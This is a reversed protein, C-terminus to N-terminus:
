RASLEAERPAGRGSEVRDLALLVAAALALAVLPHLPGGAALVLLLVAAGLRLHLHDDVARWAAAYTGILFLALGSGLAFAGTAGLHADELHAMAQEIGLAALIVGFVIPFHLYTFLDRGVRAREQATRSTPHM